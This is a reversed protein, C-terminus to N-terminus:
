TATQSTFIFDSCESDNDDSCGKTPKPKRVVNQMRKKLDDDDDDDNYVKDLLM